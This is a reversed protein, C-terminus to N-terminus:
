ELKLQVFYNTPLMFYRNSDGLFPNEIRIIEPQGDIDFVRYIWYNKLKKAKEWENNSLYFNVNNSWKQTTSKVEIFRESGDEDFSLIDYGLTDDILSVQNIKRVLHPFKSLREEESALVLQEGKSGIEILRKQREIFNIKGKGTIEPLVEESNEIPAKRKKSRGLDTINKNEAKIRLEKESFFIASESKTPIIRIDAAEKIKHAEPFVLYLYSAFKIGNWNKIISHENRIRLLKEQKDYIEVFRKGAQIDGCFQAIFFDLHNESFISLFQTPYYISLIKYKLMPSLKNQIIKERNNDKGSQLLELISERINDFTLNPDNSINWKETLKIQGTEKERYMGFKASTAGQISGLSRLGVEIQYCFNEHTAQGIVYDLYNMEKIFKEPFQSVFQNRLHEKELDVENDVRTLNFDFDKLLRKLKYM